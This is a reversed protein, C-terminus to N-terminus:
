STYTVTKRKQKICGYNISPPIRSQQLLREMLQVSTKMTDSILEKGYNELIQILQSKLTFDVKEHNQVKERWTKRKVSKISSADIGSENSERDITTKISIMM